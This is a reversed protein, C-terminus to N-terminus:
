FEKFIWQSDMFNPTVSKVRGRKVYGLEELKQLQKQIHCEGHPSANLIQKITFHEDDKHEM